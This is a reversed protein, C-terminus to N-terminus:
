TEVHEVEKISMDIITKLDGKGLQGRLMWIDQLQYMLKKANPKRDLLLQYGIDDGYKRMLVSLQEAGDRSNPLWKVKWCYKCCYIDGGDVSYISVLYHAQTSSSNCKPSLWVIGM